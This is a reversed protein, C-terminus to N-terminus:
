ENNQERRKFDVYLQFGLYDCEWSYLYFMILISDLSLTANLNM